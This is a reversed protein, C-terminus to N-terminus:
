YAMEITVSDKVSSIMQEILPKNLPKNFVDNMGASSCLKRVNNLDYATVAYIKSKKIQYRDEHKRIKNALQIGDIDPLGIDLIILDYSENKLHELAQKGNSACDPYYGLKNFMIKSIKMIMEEDEVFLIKINEM